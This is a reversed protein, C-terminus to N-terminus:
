GKLLAEILDIKRRLEPIMDLTVTASVVALDGDVGVQISGRKGPIAPRFATQADALGPAHPRYDLGTAKAVKDLTATSVRGTYDADNLPRNITSASVGAAAALANGSMGTEALVRRLYAVEWSDM